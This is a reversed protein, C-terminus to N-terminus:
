ILWLRFPPGCLGHARTPSHLLKLLPSIPLQGFCPTPPQRFPSKNQPNLFFLLHRWYYFNRWLSTYTKKELIKKEHLNKWFFFHGLFDQLSKVVPHHLFKKIPVYRLHLSGRPVRLLRCRSCNQQSLLLRIVSICVNRGTQVSNDKLKYM